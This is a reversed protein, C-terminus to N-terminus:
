NPPFIWIKIVVCARVVERTKRRLDAEKRAIEDREKEIENLRSLLSGEIGQWNESAVAYQTQLTEIQRLMKAQTEGATSSSAEEARSRLSEMKSELATQEGKLEAELVRANEKERELSDQLSRIERKMKEESLEREIKASSLEDELETVRRKSQELAEAQAKSEAVEARSVARELQGALEEVTTTLADRESTVGELEKSAKSQSNLSEQARKESAEARKARADADSVDRELKAARRKADSEQKNSEALQQRLKKIVTRNDLETKSLKQGEEMLLAIREDKESLQKEISGPKAASAADRASDAAEKALYKLKSQLADIREIYEHMEEQWRSEAARHEAQLEELPSDPAPSSTEADEAQLVIDPSESADNNITIDDIEFEPIEREDSGNEQNDNDLVNGVVPSDKSSGPLSGSDLSDRPVASTAGENSRGSSVTQDLSARTSDISARTENNLLPTSSRSPVEVSSRPSGSVAPSQSKAM